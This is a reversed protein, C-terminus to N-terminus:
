QIQSFSLPELFWNRIKSVTGKYKDLNKMRNWDPHAIFGKWHDEHASKNPASLMYTLNPVDDGVLMEGFFVPGLNVDRM